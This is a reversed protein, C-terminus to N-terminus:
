AGRNDVIAKGIKLAPLADLERIKTELQLTHERLEPHTTLAKHCLQRAENEIEAVKLMVQQACDLMVTTKADVM